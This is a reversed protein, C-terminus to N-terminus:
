AGLIRIQKELKKAQEQSDESFMRSNRGQMLKRQANIVADDVKLINDRQLLVQRAYWDIQEKIRQFSENEKSAGDDVHLHDQNASM